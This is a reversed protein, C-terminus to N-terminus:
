QPQQWWGGGRNYRTGNGGYSGMGVAEGQGYHGYHQEPGASHVDALQQVGQSQHPRKAPPPVDNSQPYQDMHPQQQNVPSMGPQQPAAGRPFNQQQQQQQQPNYGRTFNYQATQPNGYSYFFGQAQPPPQPNYFQSGFGYGYNGGVQATAAGRPAGKPDAHTINLTSHRLRHTQSLIRQVVNGDQFTVFGFGRYPKPIYIDSIEGYQGFYDELEEKTAEPKIPLCGVFLKCPMYSPSKRPHKIDIRRDKITHQMSQVKDQVAPDLFRVFGFGRSKGTVHDKKVEAAAVEGFQEFYRRLEADTVSWQLGLIIMDERNLDHVKLSTFDPSASRPNKASREEEDGEDEMKRKYNGDGGGGASVEPSNVIANSSTPPIVVVIYVAEGWGAEPPHLVDGVRKVARWCGSTPNRYKLGSAREFQSQLVSILLNGDEEVPLEVGSDRNTEDDCVYVYGSM